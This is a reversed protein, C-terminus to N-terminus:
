RCTVTKVYHLLVQFPFRDLENIYKMNKIHKTMTKSTLGAPIIFDAYGMHPNGLNIVAYGVSTQSVWKVYTSGVVLWYFSNPYHAQIKLHCGLVVTIIVYLKALKVQSTAFM